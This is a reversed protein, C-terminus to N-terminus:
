RYDPHGDMMRIQIENKEVKNNQDFKIVLNEIFVPDVVGNEVFITYSVTNTGKDVELKGIMEEVEAVTKGILLNRNILDRALAPRVEWLAEVGIKKDDFWKEKEFLIPKIKSREKVIEEYSPYVSFCASSISITLLILFFVVRKKNM